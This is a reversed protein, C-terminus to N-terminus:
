AGRSAEVCPTTKNNALICTDLEDILQKLEHVSKAGLCVAIYRHLLIWNKDKGCVIDREIYACEHLGDSDFGIKALVKKLRHVSLGREFMSQTTPHTPNLPEIQMLRRMISSALPSVPKDQALLTPRVNM